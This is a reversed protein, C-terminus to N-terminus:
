DDELLNEKFEFHNQNDFKNLEQQITEKDSSKIEKNDLLVWNTNLIKKVGYVSKIEVKVYNDCKAIM